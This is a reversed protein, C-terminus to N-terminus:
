VQSVLRDGSLRRFYEDIGLLAFSWSRPATSEVISPLAQEFLQVAWSQLRRQRSRGLCAGLAWLARGHCDDSGVEELWRREFGLFNRFRRRNRCFAANLFAAYRTSIPLADHLSLTYLQSPSAAAFSSLL